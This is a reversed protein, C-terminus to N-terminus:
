CTKESLKEECDLTNTILENVLNERFEYHALTPVNGFCKMAQYANTEIFGLLGSFQRIMPSQSRWTDELGRQGTRIHNYVDIAGAHDFYESVVAPRPIMVKEGNRRIKTRPKGPLTTSCSAIMEFQKKDQYRIALLDKSKQECLVFEGPKLSAKQRSLHYRPFLKHATKVMMISNLGKAKLNECTKVSEFWSDGIVTRGSGWYPQTLRLTTAVPSGLSQFDKLTMREKTESKELVLDIKTRSDCLNKIEVGVPRPKRIIKKKGELMKHRLSIMSEDLTLHSGPTLAGTFTKNLIEIFMLVQKEEDPNDALKLAQNIARFREFSMINGLNVAPFVGYNESKWYHRITPLVLSEQMFRIGIWCLFEKVTVVKWQRVATSGYRNTLPIIVYRLHKLPFFHLFYALASNQVDSEFHNSLRTGYVTNAGGRSDLTKSLSNVWNFGMEEQYKSKAKDKDSPKVEESDSQVTLIKM